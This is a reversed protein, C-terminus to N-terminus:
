SDPKRQGDLMFTMLHLWDRFPLFQLLARLQEFFTRRSPSLLRLEAYQEDLWDLATHLAFALLILTALLNSLHRKGHGFNHDFHYGHNKLVNNNGNEISWRARGAQAVEIVTKDTLEYSTMWTNHYTQKGTADTVTLECWNLTLADDSDRLPIQNAYRYHYNLQRKGHGQKITMSHLQENREFDSIWEAVVPHSGHRCTLIVEFGQERAMQVFPQHCYLDDGLLTMNWAAYYAGWQTLWRKAAAIECDQKEHGDQPTIFEPILPVVKSEGQAVIVPTLASHSYLTKGNSLSQQRCCPCSIKQSSFFQTGDFALLLTQKIARLPELYQAQYLNEALKSLCPYLTEPPVTDLLNRIQSISPIQHVGFISQVNSQNHAKELRKQYDLFSPSQTFFVAFASLVADKLEYKLNNARAKKRSDPLTNFQEAVMSIITNFSLETDPLETQFPYSM